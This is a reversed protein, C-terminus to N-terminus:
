LKISKIKAEFNLLKKAKEVDLLLDQLNNNKEKYEVKFSYQKKLLSILDNISSKVPNSINFVGPRDYSISNIIASCADSVHLFNRSASGDGYVTIVGKDKIDRLFNFIVGKDNGEGYVNPFRLITYQLGYLYGYLEIIKEAYLKTLGYFTNPNTPDLEYSKDGLPNGYVAGSSSYILKKLGKETGIRLLNETTKLNKDLLGTFNGFFGGALHIVTSIDKKFFMEVDAESLLDGEFPIIKYGGDSRLQKILNRGIFGAIGTIGIVRKKSGEKGM